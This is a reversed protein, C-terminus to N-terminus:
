IFDIVGTMGYFNIRIQIGLNDERPMVTAAIKVNMETM